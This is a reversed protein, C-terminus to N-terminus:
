SLMGCSHKISTSFPQWGDWHGLLAINRPDGHAYQPLCSFLNHCCPCHITVPSHMHETLFSSIHDASVVKTCITCRTPLLWQQTPDWFWSLESFRDGDWIECFNSTRVRIGPTRNLWEDHHEWHAVMKTCFKKSACWRKVKDAISLYYYKINRPKKCYQCLSEPNESSSWQHPHSSDLCIYYTIPDTYGAKRLIQLCASYTHPWRNVAAPNKKCYLDRGYFVVDMLNKQSGGM